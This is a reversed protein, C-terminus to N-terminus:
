PRRPERDQGAGDARRDDDRVGARGDPRSAGSASSGRTEQLLLYVNVVSNM